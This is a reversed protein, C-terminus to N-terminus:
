VERLVLHPFLARFVAKRLRWADDRYAGKSDEVIRDGTKADTYLADCKYGVRRGGAHKVPKGDIEFWFQHQIELDLIEGAAELKHLEDCRLAERKSAHLHDQACVTKRANFKNRRYPARGGSM